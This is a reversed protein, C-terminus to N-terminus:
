VSIAGFLRELFHIPSNNLNISNNEYLNNYVFSKYNKKFFELSKNIAKENCYFITGGVFEFNIKLINLFRIKLENNFKDKNLKIYYNKPGICNCLPNRYLLLQKLPKDLLFNTLEQFQNEISKSHLKIIHQFRYQTCIDDYMLLTPTIDTGFEKSEYVAYYEFNNKIYLKMNEAINHKINFCFAVNCPQIKLYKIIKNIVDYGKKENGIFVLLLLPIDPNLNMFRKKILFKFIHEYSNKYLYKSVFEYGLYVHNRYYIFIKNMFTLFQISPFINILQKPHYIFGEMGIVQIYRLIERKNTLNLNNINKCFFLDVDFANKIDKNKNYTSDLKLCGLYLDIDSISNYTDYKFLNTFFTKWETNGIWFKHGGFSNPNFISESSFQTAIEYNAINGIGLEQTNQSFYIDEPPYTLQNQEMYEIINSNFITTQPSITNIIKLMISKSRLSLGGNDVGTPTDNQHKPRPAKIYDYSLFNQINNYFILSDEQYILIKEGVFLNWFEISTLLQNYSNVDLNDINCKILKINPSLQSILTKMFQFNINGCIITFSWSKGLKFIANRLIFEIHPFIRFEILVAECYCNLQIQHLPICKQFLNYKYCMMRFYYHDNILLETEEINYLKCFKHILYGSDITEQKNDILINNM